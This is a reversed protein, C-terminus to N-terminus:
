NLRGKREMSGVVMAKLLDNKAKTVALVDRLAEAERVFHDQMVRAQRLEDRTAQLQDMLQEIVDNADALASQRGLTMARQVDVRNRDNIIIGRM